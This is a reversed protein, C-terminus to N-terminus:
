VDQGATLGTLHHAVSPERSPWNFANAKWNRLQGAVLPVTSLINLRTPCVNAMCRRRRVVWCMSLTESKIQQNAITQKEREICPRKCCIWFFTYGKDTWEMQTRSAGSASSNFRGSHNTWNRYKRKERKVSNLWHWIQVAVPTCVRISAKKNAGWMGIKCNYPREFTASCTFM